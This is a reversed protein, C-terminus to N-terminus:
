PRSAQYNFDGDRTLFWVGAVNALVLGSIMIGLLMKDFFTRM